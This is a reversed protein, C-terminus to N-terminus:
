ISFCPCVGLANSAYSAYGYGAYYVFWFSTSIDVSPSRLWWYATNGDKDTRVRRIESNFYPFTKDDVDANYAKFVETYSPLWLRSTKEYVQGDIRQKITRPKIIAQLGKPLLPLIEKDLEDAMKCKAWGGENTDHDNMKGDCLTSDFIFIVSNPEYLDEAVARITVAREDTLKFRITDGVSIIMNGYGSHIEEAFQEWNIGQEVSRTLTANPERPEESVYQRWSFEERCQPCRVKITEFM